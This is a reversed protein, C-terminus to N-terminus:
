RYDMVTCSAGTDVLFQVPKGYIRCIGKMDFDTMNWGMVANAHHTNQTYYTSTQISSSTANADNKGNYGSGRESYVYQAHEQQPM